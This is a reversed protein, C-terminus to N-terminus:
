KWKGIAIVHINANGTIAVRTEIQLAIRISETDQAAYYPYIATSGNMITASLISVAPSESFAAPFTWTCDVVASNTASATCLGWCVQTGDAFRVYYGNANDGSEIIHGDSLAGVIRLAESPVKNEADLQVTRFFEQLATGNNNQQIALVPMTM